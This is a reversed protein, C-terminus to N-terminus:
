PNYSSVQSVSSTQPLFCLYTFPLQEQVRESVSKWNSTAVKKEGVISTRNQTNQTANKGCHDDPDERSPKHLFNDLSTQQVKPKVVALPTTFQKSSKAVTNVNCTNSTSSTSSSPNQKSWQGPQGSSTQGHQPTFNRTPRVPTDFSNAQQGFSSEVGIKRQSHQQSTTQVGSPIEVDEDFDDDFISEDIDMDNIITDMGSKGLSDSVSSNVGNRGNNNICGSSSEHTTKNMYGNQGSHSSPSAQCEIQSLAAELDADLFDEDEM